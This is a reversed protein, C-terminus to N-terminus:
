LRPSKFLARPRNIAKSITKSFHENKAIFIAKRYRTILSKYNTHNEMTPNRRWAGEARRREQKLSTLSDNFCGSNNKRTPARRIPAVMDATQLLATNLSNLTDKTSCNQTLVAIKNSLTTKFLQLYLKKQSRTCHITTSHTPIQYTINIKFKIVHHDTWPLPMDDLTNIDMNQKFILDLTHASSHTPANILQQLGLVELQNICATAISDQSSNAWLNFDGLLLLNKNELHIYLHIRYFTCPFTNKTGTTQLVTTHSLHGPTNNSM